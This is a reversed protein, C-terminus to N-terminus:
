LDISQNILQNIWQNILQNLKQMPCEEPRLANVPTRSSMAKILNDVREMFKVTAECDNLDYCNNKFTLMAVRVSKSFLEEALRVNMKQYGEPNLHEPTLKYAVKLNAKLHNEYKLLAEWHSKRVMGDPTKRQLRHLRKSKSQLKRKMTMYRKNKDCNNKRKSNLLKKRLNRCNLCRREIKYRKYEEHPDLIGYCKDSCKKQLFGSGSCFQSKGITRLLSWFDTVSSIPHEYIVSIGTEVVTIMITFDTSIVIKLKVKMLVSDIHFLIINTDDDFTRSRSWNFPLAKDKLMNIIIKLSFTSSNEDPDINFGNTSTQDEVIDDVNNHVDSTDILIQQEPVFENGMRDCNLSEDTITEESNENQVFKNKEANQHIEKSEGALINTSKPVAGLALDCKIRPSRYVSGDPLNIKDEKIVDKDKFHLECIFSNGTLTQSLASQWEQFKRPCKPVKFLATQRKKLQKRKNREAKRGSVCNNVACVKVM